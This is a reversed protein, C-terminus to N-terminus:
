YLYIYIYIYPTGGHIWRKRGEQCTKYELSLVRKLTKPKFCEHVVKVLMMLVFGLMMPIWVFFCDKTALTSYQVLCLGRPPGVWM